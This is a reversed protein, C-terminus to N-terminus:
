YFFVCCSIFCVVKKAVIGGFTNRPRKKFFQFNEPEDYVRLKQGMLVDNQVSTGAAVTGDIQKFPVVDNSVSTRFIMFSKPEQLIM